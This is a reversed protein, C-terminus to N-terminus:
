FEMTKPMYNQWEGSNVLELISFRKVLQKASTGHRLEGEIVTIQRNLVSELDTKALTLLADYRDQNMRETQNTFKFTPVDKKWDMPSLNYYYKIPEINPFNEEFLEKNSQLQMLHTEFTGKKGSKFDVICSHVGVKEHKPKRGKKSIVTEGDETLSDNVTGIWDVLTAVGITDSCLPMEIALPEAAYEETWQLYSLTDKVIMETHKAIFSPSIQNANMAEAFSERIAKVSLPSGKSIQAILGHYFSGYCSKEFLETKAAEYGKDAWWKLLFPTMLYKSASTAGMYFRVSGDELTRFYIRAGKLTSLRYMEYPRALQEGAYFAVLKEVSIVDFNSEQNQDEM